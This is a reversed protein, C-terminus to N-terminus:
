PHEDGGLAARCGQGATREERQLTAALRPREVHETLFVREREQIREETVHRVDADDPVGDVTDRASVRAGAEIRACCRTSRPAILYPPPTQDSGLRISGDSKGSLASAAIRARM